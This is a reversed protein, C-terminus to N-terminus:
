WATLPGGLPTVRAALRRPALVMKQGLVRCHQAARVVLSDGHAVCRRWRGEARGPDPLEHLLQEGHVSQRGDHLGAMRHQPLTGGREVALQLLTLQALEYGQHPLDHVFCGADSQGRRLQANRQLQRDEFVLEFYVVLGGSGPARVGSSKKAM